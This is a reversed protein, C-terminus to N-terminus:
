IYEAMKPIKTLAFLEVLRALDVLMQVFLKHVLDLFKLLPLSSFCHLRLSSVQFRVSLILQHQIRRIGSKLRAVM